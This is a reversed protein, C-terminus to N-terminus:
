QRFVEDYFVPQYQREVAWAISTKMQEQLELLNYDDCFVEIIKRDELGGLHRIVEDVTMYPLKVNTTIYLMGMEDDYWYDCNWLKELRSQNFYLMPFEPCSLFLGEIGCDKWARVADKTGSWFHTRPYNDWAEPGAFRLIEAKILQFDAYATQYDAEDYLYYDVVGPKKTRAHFSLRLWDSNRQWESRFKDTMESLNFGGLKEYFLYLSFKAGYEEHFQRLVALVEVDFISRLSNSKRTIEELLDITDDLGCHYVRDMSMQPFSREPKMADEAM